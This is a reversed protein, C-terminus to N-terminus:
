LSSSGVSRGPLTLIEHGSDTVAVTHEFHASLSGDATVMTWGDPMTKVRWDGVNVMPEIALVLGPTLVLDQHAPTFYNPVQPEEHVAYGVGHGVLQRVVAYGAAEVRRQIARSIDSIRRGPAVEAIGARLAETTVMLLRRATRSVAGVPVTRAADVYLWRDRPKTALGLDLGVIDGDELARDTAPAHVVEDNVSACLTCPFAPGAQSPRYNFFTPKAGAERVLQEALQDLQRTTVGPKVAAAVANLVRGLLQGAQRLGAIDDPTKRAIM